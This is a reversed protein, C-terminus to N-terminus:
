LRGTRRDTQMIAGAAEPLMTMCRPNATVLTRTGSAELLVFGQEALIRLHHSVNSQTLSLTEVISGVTVPEDQGALHHLIELRTPDALCKFWGAWEAFDDRAPNNVDCTYAARHTAQDRKIM